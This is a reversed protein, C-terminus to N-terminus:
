DCGFGVWWDLGHTVGCEPGALRAEEDVGGVGDDFGQDLERAQHEEVDDGM